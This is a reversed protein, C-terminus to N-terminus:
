SLLIVDLQNSPVFLEFKVLEPKLDEGTTPFDNSLGPDNIKDLLLSIMPYYM